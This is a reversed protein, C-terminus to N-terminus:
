KTQNCEASVVVIGNELVEFFTVRQANGTETIIKLMKVVMIEMDTQFLFTLLNYDILQKSITSNV